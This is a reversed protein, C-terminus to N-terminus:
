SGYREGIERVLERYYRYNDFSVDPPIAHDCAPLGKFFIEIPM